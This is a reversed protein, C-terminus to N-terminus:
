QPPDVDCDCECGGPISGCACGGWDQAILCALNCAAQLKNGGTCRWSDPQLTLRISDARSAASTARALQYIATAQQLREPGSPLAEVEPGPRIISEDRAGSVSRIGLGVIAIAVLLGCARVARNSRVEHGRLTPPMGVELSEALFLVVSDARERV